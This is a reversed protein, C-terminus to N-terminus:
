HCCSYRGWISETAGFASAVVIRCCDTFRAKSYTRSRWFMVEDPAALWYQTQKSCARARVERERPIAKACVTRPGAVVGDPSRAQVQIANEQIAPRVSGHAVFNLAPDNVDRRLRLRAPYRASAGSGSPKPIRMPPFLAAATSPHASM